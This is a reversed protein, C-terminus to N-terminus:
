MCACSEKGNVVKRVKATRPLALVAAFPKGSDAIGGDVFLVDVGLPYAAHNDSWDTWFWPPLGGLRFPEWAGHEYGKVGPGTVELLGPGTGNFAPPSQGGTSGWTRSPCLGDADKASRDMRIVLTTSRDPFDARGPHFASLRPMAGPQSIFAFVAQGPNATFPTACHFRLHHRTQPTDATADLWLPTDNDCLTLALAVMGQPMDGEPLPHPLTPLCVFMGPRSFAQLVARFVAQADDVPNAFGPVTGSISHASM